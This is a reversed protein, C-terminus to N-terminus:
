PRLDLELLTITLPKFTFEFRTGHIETPQSVLSIRKPDDRSNMVEATGAHAHDELVLAAGGAVNLGELQFSRRLSDLTSNVAYIRLKRGDASVSAALDPEQQDWPLPSSREIRLPYSGAARAYMEQAYYAPSEYIWGPGTELFGSGRSDALNSRNAIEVLDAHRELLNLYRSISLANGLTQLKGRALGWDGGTTNWETVGVRIDKGGANSGIWEQLERFSSDEKSLNEVEYHHPCLYDFTAGAADM